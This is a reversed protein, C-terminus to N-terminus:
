NGPPVKEEFVEEVSQGLRRNIRQMEINREALARSKIKAKLSQGLAKASIKMEGFPVQNNYKRVEKWVDSIAEKDKTEHAWNYAAFLVKRQGNYYEILERKAIIREWGKSRRTPTFSLAQGILELRDLPDLIDFEAVIEGRRTREEGQAAFRAAKNVNALFAPMFKESRKWLDPDDNRVGQMMRLVGSGVAGSARMTTRVFAKDFSGENVLFETPLLNGLGISASMDVSPIPLGTLQGVAAMGFSQHSIGHMLLDPNDMMEKIYERLLVRSQLKPNKWGLQRRLKTGLFDVVDLLDEAFPLGQLGGMLLMMYWFRLAGPAGGAAFFLANQVYNLFLFVVGKGGRFMKPRNWKSYEFQTDDVARRAFQFSPEIGKGNKRSLRYAALATINRNLKEVNHFLWASAQSMKLFGLRTGGVPLARELIDEQAVAALTAALSEDLWGEEKGRALLQLEESSLLEPNTWYRVADRGAKSLAKIAEVDGFEAALRPLSVLVVQTSNLVAAKVNFGLFWIFGLARLAQYENKPNMVYDFHEKMHDVIQQRKDANGGDIKTIAKVTDEVDKINRQLDANFKVRALHSSGLFFYNAYSRMADMSFGPTGQRRLFHRRFGQVPSIKIILEDLETKQEPSLNLRDKLSRILPIPLMQVAAETDSLRSEAITFKTKDGYIRQMSKLEKRRARRTDRTIFEVVKENEDRVVIAFKGFRELPFFPKSRMETFDAAVVALQKTKEIDSLASNKIEAVLVSEMEELFVAFDEKINVALKLTEENLGAERIKQKQEETLGTLLLKGNEDLEVTLNPPIIFEESLTEEYLFKALRRADNKGLRRWQKVREQAVAIRNNKFASWQRLTDVYEQLGTIHENLRAIQIINLTVDLFRNFTDLTDNLEPNGEFGTLKKWATLRDVTQGSTKIDQLKKQYASRAPLSEIWAETTPPRELGLGKLSPDFAKEYAEEMKQRVEEFYDKVIPNRIEQFAAHKAVTEAQWEAFSTLYVMDESSADLVSGMSQSVEDFRTARATTVGAAWDVGTGEALRVRWAEYELRIAQRTEKPAKLILQQFIAHGAEHMLTEFFETKGKESLVRKGNSDVELFNQMRRLSFALIQVDKFAASLGVTGSGLGRGTIGALAFMESTANDIGLVKIDPFINKQLDNIFAQVTRRLGLEIELVQKRRDLIDEAAAIAADINIGAIHTAGEDRQTLFGQLADEASAVAHLNGTDAAVFLAKSSGLAQGATVGPQFGTEAGMPVLNLVEIVAPLGNSQALRSTRNRSEAPITLVATPDAIDALAQMALTRAQFSMTSDDVLNEFYETLSEVTRRSYGKLKENAEGAAEMLKLFEVNEEPTAGLLSAVGAVNAPNNPDIEELRELVKRQLEFERLRIRGIKLGFSTALANLLFGASGGIRAADLLNEGMPRDPDFGAIDSATINAGWAQGLEQIAEEFFGRTAAKLVPESSKLPIRRLSRTVWGGTADDLREVIRMAPMAESIGFAANSLFSTRIQEDTAGYAAAERAGESGGVISGLAAICMGPQMGLRACLTATAAFSASQGFAGPLDRTWFGPVITGEDFAMDRRIKAGMAILSESAGSLDIIKVAPTGFLEADPDTIFFKVKRDDKLDQVLKELEARRGITTLPDGAEQQAVGIVTNRAFDISNLFDGFIDITMGLTEPIAALMNTGGEEMFAAGASKLNKGLKKQASVIADNVRRDRDLIDFLGTFPSGPLRGFHAQRPAIDKGGADILLDDPNGPLPIPAAVAIPQEEEEEIPNNLLQVPTQNPHPM